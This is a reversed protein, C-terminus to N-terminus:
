VDRIDRVLRLIRFVFEPRQSINPRLASASEMGGRQRQQRKNKPPTMKRCPSERRVDPAIKLGDPFPM